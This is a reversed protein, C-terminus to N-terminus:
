HGNGVTDYLNIGVDPSCSTTAQAAFIFLEVFLCPANELVLCFLVIINYKKYLIAQPYQKIM